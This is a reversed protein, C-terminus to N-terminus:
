TAGEGGFLFLTDGAVAAAAGCTAAKGSGNVLTWHNLNFSYQWTDGTAGADGKGGYIYMVEGSVAVVMDYRPSPSTLPTLNVWTGTM